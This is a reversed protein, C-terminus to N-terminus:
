KGVLPQSHDPYGTNYEGQLKNSTPIRKRTTQRTGQFCQMQDGSDWEMKSRTIFEDKCLVVRGGGGGGRM